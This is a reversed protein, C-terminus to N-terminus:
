ENGIGMEKCLKDYVNQLRARYLDHEKEFSDHIEKALLELLDMQEEAKILLTVDKFKKM